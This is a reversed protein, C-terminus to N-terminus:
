QKLLPEKLLTTFRSNSDKAGSEDGPYLKTGDIKYITKVKEKSIPANPAVPCTEDATKAALDVDVDLEWDGKACFALQSFQNAMLTSKPTVFYGTVAIDLEYIGVAELENGTAYIHETRADFLHKAGVSCTEDKDYVSEVLSFKEAAFVFATSGFHGSDGSSAVCSSKWTGLLSPAVVDKTKGAGGCSASIWLIGLLGVLNQPAFVSNKEFSEM